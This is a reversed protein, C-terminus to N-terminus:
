VSLNIKLADGVRKNVIWHSHCARSICNNLLDLYQIRTKRFVTDIMISKKCIASRRTHIPAPSESLAAFNLHSNNNTFYQINFFTHLLQRYSPLGWRSDLSFVTSRSCWEGKCFGNWRYFPLLFLYPLLLLKGSCAWENRLHLLIEKIESGFLLFEFLLLSYEVNFVRWQRLPNLCQISHNALYVILYPIQLFFYYECNLNSCSDCSWLTCLKRSIFCCQFTDRSEEIEVISLGSLDPFKLFQSIINKEFLQLNSLLQWQVLFSRGLVFVFYDHLLTFQLTNLM